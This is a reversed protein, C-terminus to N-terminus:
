ARPELLRSERQLHPDGCREPARPEIDTLAVVVAIRALRQRSPLDVDDDPRAGSTNVVDQDFDGDLALGGGFRPDHEGLSRRLPELAPGALRHERRLLRV